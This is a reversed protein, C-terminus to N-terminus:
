KGTGVLSVMSTSVSANSSITASGNDPGAMSPMLTIGYQCKGGPALVGNTPCTTQKGAVLHYDSPLTLGFLTIPVTTPNSVKLAKIGSTKTVKINGFSIPKGPLTLAVSPAECPNSAPTSRFDDFRTIAAGSLPYELALLTGYQTVDGFSNLTGDIGSGGFRWACAGSKDNGISFFPYFAAGAPPNVCGSGTKTDCTATPEIAPMDAEFASMDYNQLPGPTTPNLLPSAFTIPAPHFKADITPNTGPWNLNYSVGDFDADADICGGIKIRPSDAPPFCELLDPESPQLCAGSPDVLACYDFHGIEDAFAINYSHAVWPVRTHVSSTSYMPHFAYPTSTCSSATPAFNVQAFGNAISAKMSGKQHTTNDYIVVEFGDATDHMDLTISDGPNMLLDTRLNPQILVPNLPDAPTDSVGSKTIYAFNVTEDGISNVCASNNDTNTNADFNYSDINLAACWHKGDCSTVWGPPYFQMEMYATGPHNGIFDAANPDSNDFINADTDAVCTNSFEPFSETDCMAMGFWFAPHLQFNFMGGTGNQKPLKPPDKPLTLNYIAANGAGPTPSYFLLSPEDHGIHKGGTYNFANETCLYEHRECFSSGNWSAASIAPWMFVQAVMLVIAAAFASALRRTISRM